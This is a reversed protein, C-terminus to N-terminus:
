KEEKPLNWGEPVPIGNARMRLIIAKMAPRGIYRPWNYVSQINEYGLREATIVYGKASGSIEKCVDEKDIKMKNKGNFFIIWHLRIM